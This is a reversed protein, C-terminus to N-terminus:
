WRLSFHQKPQKDRFFVLGIDFLDITLKVEPQAKIEEWAKTMGESWYIDDFVMMGEKEMIPLLTKYYNITAEYTHNADLFAVDVKDEEQVYAPLLEDINGVRLDIDTGFSTFNEKAVSAIEDCGEMTTISAGHVAEHLYMTNVGLSTGLELVCRPQLFEMLRFLLKSKKETSVSVKAIGSVKRTKSSNVSSGAGLDKIVLERDDTLLAKKLQYLKEFAYYDKDVAIVETYLKFVFPSHLGHANGAKLRYKIYSIIRHLFM